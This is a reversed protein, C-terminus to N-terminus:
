MKMVLAETRGNSGIQFFRQIGLVHSDWFPLKSLMPRNVEWDSAFGNAVAVLVLRARQAQDPGISEDGILFYTAIHDAANEEPGLIPIDLDEILVHALEHLFIFEVNGHVFTSDRDTAGVAAACPLLFSAVLATWMLNSLNSGFMKMRMLQHSLSTVINSLM